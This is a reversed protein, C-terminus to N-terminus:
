KRNTGVKIKPLMGKMMDDMIKNRNKAMMMCQNGVIAGSHYAHIDVGNQKLAKLLERDADGRHANYLEEMHEETGKAVFLQLLFQEYQAEEEPTTKNRELEVKM